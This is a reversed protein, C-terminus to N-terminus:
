AGITVPTGLPLVAALRAIDRNPIRICGHSVSHGISSRENTGHIGIQGPGGGFSYLVHSFASTGFAYPGYAGSPDPQKLLEVLYYRGRPTPLSPRGVAAPFRSVVKGHRRLVLEHRALHVELSYPNWALSLSRDAVWGTSGDPRVPLYVQEWGRGRKEVLFVLPEGASTPNALRMFPRAAAPSRYVAVEHTVATAVISDGVHSPAPARTQTTAAAHRGGGGGCGALGLALTAVLAAAFRHM